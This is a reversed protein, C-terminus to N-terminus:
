CNQIWYLKEVRDNEAAGPKSNRALTTKVPKQWFPLGVWDPATYESVFVHGPRDRVWRWFEGSDFAGVSYGTTGDYPPDCYTIDANPTDGYDNHEITCGVLDNAIKIVARKAEGTFDRGNSYRAYGNFFKGGFSCGFGAFGRLASPESNRLEAYQEEAIVDPPEWGSCVAKLLLVLDLHEDSFRREAAIVHRGVGCMGCFPEAYSALKDCIVLNNIFGAITKGIRQKGGLYRM